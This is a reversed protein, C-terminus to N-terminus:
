AVKKVVWPIIGSCEILEGRYENSFEIIDSTPGVPRSKNQGSVGIRRLTTNEGSRIIQYAELQNASGNLDQSEWIRKSSNYGFVVVENKVDLICSKSELQRSRHILYSKNEPSPTECFLRVAELHERTTKESFSAAGEFLDQMYLKWDDYSGDLAVQCQRKARIEADSMSNFKRFEATVLGFQVKKILAVSLHCRVLTKVADEMTDLQSCNGSAMGASSHLNKFSPFKTTTPSQANLPLSTAITLFVSLCLFRPIM